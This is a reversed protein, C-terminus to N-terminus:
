KLFMRLARSPCTRFAKLCINVWGQAIRPNDKMPFDTTSITCIGVALVTNSVFEGNSIACAIIPAPLDYLYAHLM